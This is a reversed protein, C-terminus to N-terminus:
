MTAGTLSRQDRRRWSGRDVATIFRDVVANFLDPEELNATHGTQPLVALGSTPITRKLM